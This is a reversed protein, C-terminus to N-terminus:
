LVVACNLEQDTDVSTYSHCSRKLVRSRRWSPFNSSHREPFELLVKYLTQVASKAILAKGAFRANVSDTLQTNEVRIEPEVGAAEVM